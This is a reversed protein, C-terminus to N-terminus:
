HIYYHGAMLDGSGNNVSKHDLFLFLTRTYMCAHAHRWPEGWRSRDELKENSPRTTASFAPLCVAHLAIRSSLRRHQCATYSAPPALIVFAALLCILQAPPLFKAVRNQVPNAMIRWGNITTWPDRGALSMVHCQCCSELKLSLHLQILISRSSSRLKSERQFKALYQINMLRLDSYWFGAM